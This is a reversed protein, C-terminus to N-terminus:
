ALHVSAGGLRDGRGLPLQAGDQARLRQQLCVQLQADGQSVGGRYGFISQDEDGVMFANGDRGALRWVLNHQARSTDQAEDVCWYRFRSRYSRWLNRDRDLADFALLIQDDFDMLGRSALGDQYFVLIEDFREIGGAIGAIAEANGLLMMNKVYSIACELDVLDGESM